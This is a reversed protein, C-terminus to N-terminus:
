ACVPSDARWRNFTPDDAVALADRVAEWNDHWVAPDHLETEPHAKSRAVFGAPDFASRGSPLGIPQYRLDFSLRMQDNTTNDLSSHVTRRTMLLASGPEMPLVVPETPPLYAEPIRLGGIGGPCHPAIADRHSGPMVVMCGNETTARNFPVWVTLIDTEDAEETIVGNDQHWPAGAIHGRFQADTARAPLKTRIHQVPNSWIEPGIFQEVLDLLGPHTLLRFMAAGAFFPTDHQVGKQPLSIDFYQALGEGSEISIQTFRQEFPLDRYDSTIRGAALFRAAIGDLVADFEAFVPAIDREYDLVHEIVLYGHTDFQRLQETTALVM